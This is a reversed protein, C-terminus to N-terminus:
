SKRKSDEAQVLRQHFDRISEVSFREVMEEPPPIILRGSFPHYDGEKIVSPIANFRLAIRGLARIALEKRRQPSAGSNARFTHALQDFHDFPAEMGLKGITTNKAAKAMAELKDFIYMHAAGQHILVRVRSSESLDLESDILSQLRPGVSRLIIAERYEELNAERRAFDIINDLTRNWSPVVKDLLGWKQFHNQIESARRDDKPYDIVTIRIGSGLLAQTEADAFPNFKGGELTRLKKRATKDGQAICSLLELQEETWAPVEPVFIDAERLLPAVTAFDRKDGHAGYFVTIDANDPLFPIEAAPEKLAAIEAPRATYVTPRFFREIYQM